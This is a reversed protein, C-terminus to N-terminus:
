SDGFDLGGSRRVRREVAQRLVANGTAADGMTVLTFWHRARTIGTYVLERTLVRNARPPLVLAAHTFESGQSKHVTMAYATEVAQLRAPLVWHIGGSGDAAGFAVRLLGPEGADDAPVPLAVGVDGNMLGLAYDNRTVMVPRGPYWAQTADILTAQQLIQEVQRNLAEVGAPGGRLACLLQFAQLRQLVERAWADLAPRGPESPGERVRSLYHAFGQPPPLAAGQHERGQGQRAFRAPAGAQVLPALARLDTGLDLRALDPPASALVAQVQDAEGANVAEALRGIGSTASFRHSRRLKVVAQDLPTGHEAIFEAPVQSGTVGALWRATEPLFHGRDARGCLAGLVAGAEVSALQDKDGLLILGAQPPLAAVVDAMLELGIMSAEDLVLLDLVLPHHADHRFRRSNPLSGLLRHVTLVETPIAARIREPQPLGALHLQRVAGAISENLRAAAKGTPAALRIRLPRGDDGNIALHQLVALLKVVTTTKGTGPGGTVIGFRHRAMLACALTQWDPQGARAEGFLALLAERLSADDHPRITALRSRIAERVVQECAWHRRLYLRGGALVLPAAGEGDDVVESARLARQWGALTLGQLLAAARTSSPPMADGEEEAEEGAPLDLTEQPDRLVEALDLCAHGQGFQRSVLGAALVVLPDCPSQARAIFSAFAHDVERLWDADVWAQLADLMRQVPEPLPQDADQLLRLLTNM